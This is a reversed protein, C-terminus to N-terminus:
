LEKLTSQLQSAGEINNAKAGTLIFSFTGGISSLYELVQPAHMAYVLATLGVGLPDSKAAQKFNKATATVMFGLEFSTRFAKVAYPIAEEYKKKSAASLPETRCYILDKLNNSKESVVTLSNSFKEQAGKNPNKSDIISQRIIEAEQDKGYAEM